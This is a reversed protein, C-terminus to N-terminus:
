GRDEDTPKDNAKALVAIGDVIMDVGYRAAGDAEYQNQRVRGTIHVLDGKSATLRM